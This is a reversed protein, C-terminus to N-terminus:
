AAHKHDTTETAVPSEPPDLHKVTRILTLAAFGAFLMASVGMLYPTLEAAM